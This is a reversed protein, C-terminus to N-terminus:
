CKNSISEDSEGVILKLHEELKTIHQELTYNNLFYKRGNKGLEYLGSPDDIINQMIRALGDVDRDSVAFGCRAQEIIQKAPGNIAAVVPRAAALYGFLKGPPTLGSATASSLSLLCVDAMDYFRIIEDLPYKGHFIVDESLNQEKVMSRLKSAYSGDGVFHLRAKGKYTTRSFADILVDCNQAEGINGLFMFDVIDNDIPKEVVSLYTSEAHEYLVVMKRKPIGCETYIYDSFEECKNSILTVNKYVYKSIAKAVIYIPHKKGIEKHGNHSDRVSDPWPDMCYYYIPIKYKKKYWIAPLAVTVPSPEYVYIVDFDPKINKLLKQAEIVFSLYNLALNKAGKYRPRLKCRYIKAGAYTDIRKYAEEYGSYIEGEPYNPLGTLVTVTHGRKALEKVIDNVRFQEPFFYQSVVLIKM